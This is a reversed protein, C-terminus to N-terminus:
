SLPAPAAEGDGQALILYDLEAKSMARYSPARIVFFITGLALWAALAIWSPRAMFAPMGPVMLLVLFGVSMAAGVAGYVALTFAGKQGKMRRATVFAAVCTYGYGVATGVAAMDVIWLIVQRGLWPAILSVVGTFLLANYPTRHTKHIRAFWTPLVKARGMGFLLRSCAVFFGNIGTLIAM